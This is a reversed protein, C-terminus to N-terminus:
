HNGLIHFERKRLLVNAQVNLSNLWEQPVDGKLRWFLKSWNVIRLSIPYPDWAVSTIDSNSKIWCDILRKHFDIKKECNIANLDDFYHLNYQWLPEASVLWSNGVDIKSTLNLFTANFNDDWSEKQWQCFEPSISNISPIYTFVPLKRVYFFKYYLRYFIQEIKLYRLTRIYRLIKKMKKM